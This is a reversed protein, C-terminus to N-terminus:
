SQGSRKVEIQQPAQSQPPPPRSGQGISRVFPSPSFNSWLHVIVHYQLLYVYCLYVIFLIAIVHYRLLDIHCLYFLLM